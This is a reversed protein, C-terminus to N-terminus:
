PKAEALTEMIRRKMALPSDIEIRFQTLIDTLVDNNIYVGAELLEVMVFLAGGMYMSRTESIPVGKSIAELDQKNLM